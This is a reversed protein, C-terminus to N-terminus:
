AEVKPILTCPTSFMMEVEGSGSGSAFLPRQECFVQGHNQTLECDKRQLDKCLNSTSRAFQPNNCSAPFWTFNMRVAIDYHANEGSLFIRRLRAFQQIRLDEDSMSATICDLLFLLIDLGRDHIASSIKMGAWFERKTM